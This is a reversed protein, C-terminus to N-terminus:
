LTLQLGLTWVRLPPYVDQDTAVEPDRGKYPTFTLLNQGQLYFRASQVHARKLWKDPLRYGLSLNKLRIFSADTIVADSNGLNVDAIAVTEGAIQTFRQVNSRDGPAQWRDMVGAPQNLAGGPAYYSYLYNFRNQKVFQFLVDLQWGKYELSNQLGGYLFTGTRKTTTYDEYYSIKGDKNVDEFQYIGTAPDVGTYHFGKLIDLPQGVVYTNSYSSYEIDPFALLKNYPITINFATTWNLRENKINVTNLELEIGTNQVLAPFNNIITNFGSLGSLAYEVLQSSSRNRYYGARFLLQDQRFGLELGIELKKNLEWSYDPNYLRTPSLGRLGDYISSPSYTAYYGYDAIQDNGTSGYSARLKGYSLFPLHHRVWPATSFLWAAGISGFNAFQRGPGFRSSGDRRGTLNLIYKGQWNYTIRGFVASYRYQYYASGYPSISSALEINELQADSTFGYAYFGKQNRVDEQFTTGILVNLTSRGLRGQYSAQPEVIWSNISGESFYSFGPMNYTPNLARLTNPQVEDMLVWNYGGSTKLELTHDQRDLIKYGLVANTLLNRTNGKYTRELAAMPNNNFTGNEWNLSGDENYAAPANPATNVYRALDTQPLYNKESVFNSVVAVKGRKDPTYLALHIGGAAKQYNFSAPYATTERRYGGSIRVQTTASGGSFALQGDTIKATGGLLVEQWDTYRTTDWRTLDYDFAHPQTNDNVFAERRMQLYQKTDLYQVGHAMKGIGTYINADMQLKGEKGKKTTILIVGNAGRSGYIATADADKLVEISEINAVNILNLPNSAGLPNITQGEPLINNLTLSTGPFPVGDVIYLPNNGAAISNRGRLEVKVEGGPLGTKQIINLGSVRGQLALLPDSVPQKAIEEGTVRSISGTLNRRTSTGYAIVMVEDLGTVARVLQVSLSSDNKVQIEKPFYGICSITLATNKRINSLTFRGKRDTHDGKQTGNVIVSANRLPAGDQDTVRGTIEMTKEEPLKGLLPDGPKRPVIVFTEERYYWTLGKKRLIWALVNDLPEQRFTVTIREESSLQEDNYFAQLRTQDWVISFFDALRMNKAQYTVPREGPKLQAKLGPLATGTLLIWSLLFRYSMHFLPEDRKKM